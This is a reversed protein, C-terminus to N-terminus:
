FWSAMEELADRQAGVTSHSASVLWTRIRAPTPDLHVAAEFLETAKRQSGLRQALEAKHALASAATSRQEETIPSSM